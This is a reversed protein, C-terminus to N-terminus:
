DTSYVDGGGRKKENLSRRERFFEGERGGERREYIRDKSGTDRWRKGGNMGSRQRRNEGIKERM